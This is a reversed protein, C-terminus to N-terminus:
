KKHKLCKIIQAGGAVVMLLPILVWAGASEFLTYLMVAFGIGLLAFVTGVYLDLVDIKAKDFAGRVALTGIVFAGGGLFFFVGMFILMWQTRYIGLILLLVGTLLVIGVLITSVVHAYRFPSGDKKSGVLKNKTIWFGVLSFPVILCLLSYQKDRIAIYGAVVLFGFWFLLFGAVFIKHFVMTLKEGDFIQAISKGAMALACILFPLLIIKPSTTRMMVYALVAIAGLSALLNGVPTKRKM